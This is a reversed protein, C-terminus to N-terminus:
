CRLATIAHASSGSTPMHPSRELFHAAAIGCHLAADCTAAPVDLVAIMIATSAHVTHKSPTTTPLSPVVPSILIVALAVVTMAATVAQKRELM